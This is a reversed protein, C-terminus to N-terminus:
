VPRASDSALEARRLWPVLADSRRALETIEADDTSVLVDCIEPISKAADISWVILSRGDLPRINARFSSFV